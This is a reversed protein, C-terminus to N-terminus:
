QNIYKLVETTIFHLQAESMETHVPLSIVRETLWDTVPLDYAPLHFADFMKQRHGPVPYYIMSPIKQSALYQQLGDRDVGELVL